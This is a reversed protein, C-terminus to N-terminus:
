MQDRLGQTDRATGLSKRARDLTTIGNTIVFVNSTIDECLQHFEPSVAAQRPASGGGRFGVPPEDDGEIAGYSRYGSAGLGRSM